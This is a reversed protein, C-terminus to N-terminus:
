TVFITRSNYWAEARKSATKFYTSYEVGVLLNARALLAGDILIPGFRGFRELTGLKGHDVRIWNEADTKALEIPDRENTLVMVPMQRYNSVAPQSLLSIIHEVSPYCRNWGNTDAPSTIGLCHREFDGRRLHVGVFSQQGSPLLQEMIEDVFAHVKETFHFYQGFEVWARNNGGPLLRYVHGLCLIEEQVFQPQQYREIVKDMRWRAWISSNDRKYDIFPTPILTSNIGYREMFSRGTMDIRRDVGYGAESYCQSVVPHKVFRRALHVQELAGQTDQGNTASEPSSLEPLPQGSQILSELQIWRKKHKNRRATTGSVTTNTTSTRTGMARKVRKPIHRKHIQGNHEVIGRRALFDDLEELRVGTRHSFLELNVFESWKTPTPEAQGDIEVHVNPSLNPILLTRNLAKAIMAGHWISILQNTVGAYPVYMLYRSSSPQEHGSTTSPSSLAFASGSHKQTRAPHNPSPTAKHISAPSIHSPTPHVQSVFRSSSTKPSTCSSALFPRRSKFRNHFTTSPTNSDLPTPPASILLCTLLFCFIAAVATLFKVPRIM